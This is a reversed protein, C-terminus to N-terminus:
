KELPKAFIMRGAATQLVSTVAVRFEEGVRNKAEEVVIMTGDELYAIGQERERGKKLICVNLEEGPLMLPKIANALENINIVSVKQVAAVKNLNYDLTLVKGGAEKALRLLAADVPEEEAKELRKVEVQLGTEGLENQMKQLIDLGRRGKARRLADESDAIHQLEALVFEPIVLTGELVGTKCIDFIRGDIIVSTDVYKQDSHAAREESYFGMNEKSHSMKKAVALGLYICIMYLIINICFVLPTNGLRSFITSLLFAVLLGFGLGGSAFLVTKYSAQTIGKEVGKIFSMISTLLGESFIMTLVGGVVICIGFFAPQIWWDYRGGFRGYHEQVVTIVLQAIALGASAGALVLMTKLLKKVKM